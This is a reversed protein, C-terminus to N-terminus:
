RKELLEILLSRKLLPSYIIFFKIKLYNNKDHSFLLNWFTLFNFSQGHATSYQKLPLPPPPPELGLRPLYCKRSSRNPLLWEFVNWRSRTTDSISSSFTRIRWCNLLFIILSIKTLFNFKYNIYILMIKHWISTSGIKIRNLGLARERLIDYNADLSSYRTNQCCVTVKLITM